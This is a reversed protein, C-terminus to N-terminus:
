GLKQLQGDLHALAAKLSERRRENSAEDLERQIRTRSLVISERQQEHALEAATKRPKRKQEKSAEAIQRQEDVSKSEFGRAM